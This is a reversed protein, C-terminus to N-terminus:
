GSTEDLSSDNDNHIPSMDRDYTQLTNGNLISTPMIPNPQLLSPQHPIINCGLILIILLFLKEFKNVM